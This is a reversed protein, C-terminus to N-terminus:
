AGAARGLPFTRLTEYSPHPGLQSRVLEIDQATWPQGVFGTLSAVAPRLDTPRDSRAVTLHPRLPRDDVEIGTRRAAAIVSAALSRLPAVDSHVGVWLVRGDFRGAGEFRLDLDTGRRAARGLRETLEPLDREEVSGLFALTVHWREPPPWRLGRPDGVAARTAAVAAAVEGQQAAPVPLAVFLRLSV